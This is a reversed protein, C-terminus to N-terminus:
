CPFEGKPTGVLRCSRSDPFRWLKSLSASPKLDRHVFGKSHAVELAEAVETALKLAKELGLPGKKLEDRLTVGEVYEMAAFPRGETEAVDYVRCIFPHDLAAAAKAERVFRKRAIEDSELSESLFKLAVTRGLSTDEALYVEGMGGEGLKERILYHAAPRGEMESEISFRSLLLPLPINRRDNITM